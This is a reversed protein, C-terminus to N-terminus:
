ILMQELNGVYESLKHYVVTATLPFTLKILVNRNKEDITLIQAEICENLVEIKARQM